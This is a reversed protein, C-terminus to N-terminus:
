WLSTEYGRWISFDFHVGGGNRYYQTVKETWEAFTVCDSCKSRNALCSEVGFCFHARRFEPPISFLWICFLLTITQLIVGRNIGYVDQNNRNKKTVNTAEDAELKRDDSRSMGLSTHSCLCQPKGRSGSLGLSPDYYMSQCPLYPAPSFSSSSIIVSVAVLMRPVFCRVSPSPM